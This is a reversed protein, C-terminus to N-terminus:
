SSVCHKLPVGLSRTDAIWLRRKAAQELLPLAAEYYDAYSAKDADIFVFDFPGSLSRITEIAPGVRVEIMEAYASKAIFRQAMEAHNRDLECTIIRGAPPLAEAM